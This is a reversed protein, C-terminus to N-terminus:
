FFDEVDILEDEDDGSQPTFGGMGGEPPPVFPVTQPQAEPQPM